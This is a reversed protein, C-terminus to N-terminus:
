PYKHFLSSIAYPPWYLHIPWGEFPLVKMCPQQLQLADAVALQKIQHSSLLGQLPNRQHIMRKPAGRRLVAIKQRAYVIEM